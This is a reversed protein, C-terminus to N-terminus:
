RESPEVLPTAPGSRDFLLCFCCHDLSRAPPALAGAFLLSRSLLLLLPLPFGRHTKGGGRSGDERNRICNCGGQVSRCGVKGVCICVLVQGLDRVIDVRLPADRCVFRTGANRMLAGPLLGTETLVQFGNCIGLVPVGRGAAEVVAQMIPSRGAMAGSRLYDGYSFGGPIVVLDVDPLTTHTQWVTEPPRGSIATLAAIMDRDRNLGPLLVVASKM